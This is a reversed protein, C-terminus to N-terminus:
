VALVLAIVLVLLTKSKCCRERIDGGVQFPRLIWMENNLVTTTQNVWGTVPWNTIDVVVYDFGATTLWEAHQRAVGTINPCVPTDASM